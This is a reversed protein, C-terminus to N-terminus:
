RTRRRNELQYASPDRCPFHAPDPVTRPSSARRQQHQDKKSCARSRSARIRRPAGPDRSLAILVAAAAALVYAWRESHPGSPIPTLWPRLWMLAGVTLLMLLGTPAAAAGGAREPLLLQAAASVVLTVAVFAAYELLWAGIPLPEHGAERAAVVLQLTTGISLVVLLLWVRLARRTLLTTPSAELTAAATDDLVFGVGFTTIVITAVLAGSIGDRGSAILLPTCGLLCAAVVPGLPTARVTPVIAARMVSAHSM